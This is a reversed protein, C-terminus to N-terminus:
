GGSIRRSTTCGSWGPEQDIQEEALLEARRLQACRQPRRLVEGCRAGQLRSVGAGARQARLAPDQRERRARLHAHDFAFVLAARRQSAPIRRPRSTLACFCRCSVIIEALALTKRCAHIGTLKMSNRASHELPLRRSLQSERALPRWQPQPHDLLESLLVRRLEGPQRSRARHRLGGRCQRRRATVIM